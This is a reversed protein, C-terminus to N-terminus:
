IQAVQVIRFKGVANNAAGDSHARVIDGTNLRGIWTITGAAGAVTTLYALQFPVAIVDISTSLSSSNLSIGMSTSGAGYLDTYTVAYIGSENVLFSDGLTASSTYTIASGTNVTATGFRRIKTNTSGFGSAATVWVESIVLRVYAPVGGKTFFKLGRTIPDVLIKDVINM